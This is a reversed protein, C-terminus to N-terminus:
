KASGHAHLGFGQTSSYFIGNRAFRQNTSCYLNYLQLIGGSHGIHITVKGELNALASTVGDLGVINTVLGTHHLFDQNRSGLLYHQLNGQALVAGLQLLHHNLGTYVLLGGNVRRYKGTAHHERHFLGASEGTTVVVRGSQHHRKGTYRAISATASERNMTICGLAHLIANLANLHKCGVVKVIHPISTVSQHATHVRVHNGVAVEKSRGEVGVVVVGQTTHEVHLHARSVVGLM